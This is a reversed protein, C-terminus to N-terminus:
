PAAAIRRYLEIHQKLDPFEAFQSHVYVINTSSRSQDGPYNTPDIHVSALTSAYKVLACPQSFEEPYQNSVAAVFDSAAQQAADFDVVAWEYYSMKMGLALTDTANTALRDNIAGLIASYNTTSWGTNVSEVFEEVPDDALISSGLICIAFLSGILLITTKM